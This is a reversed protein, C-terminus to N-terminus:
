WPRKGTRRQRHDRSGMQRQNRHRHGAAQPCSSRSAPSLAATGGKNTANVIIENSEGRKIVKSVDAKAPKRGIPMPSSKKGNLSAVAGNDCTLELTALQANQPVEFRHRFTVKNDKNGDKSLWIWQPRLSIAPSLVRSHSFPFSACSAHYFAM